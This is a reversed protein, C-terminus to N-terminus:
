YTITNNTINNMMPFLVFASGITQLEVLSNIIPRDLFHDNSIFLLGSFILSLVSVFISKKSGLISSLTFINNKTDEEIDKIDALNSTAFINLFVPLYDSPYDIINYNHEYMVCPIILSAITWLLGVYFPKLYGFNVKFDKYLETSFLILIFPLNGLNESSEVFKYLILIMAMSHAYIYLNPNNIIVQYLDKKSEPIDKNKNAEFADKFRDRGYVYYALLIQFIVLEPNLINQGYHLNTYIDTFILLPASVEIGNLPMIAEQYNKKVSLITNPKLIKKVYSIHPKSVFAM